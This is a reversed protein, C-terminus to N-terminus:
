YKIIIEDNESPEYSEASYVADNKNYEKLTIAKPLRPKYRKPTIFTFRQIPGKWTRGTWLIYHWVYNNYGPSGPAASTQSFSTYKVTVMSTQRKAFELKHRFHFTIELNSNVISTEVLVEEINIDRDDQKASFEVYKGFEKKFDGYTMMRRTSANTLNVYYTYQYLEDDTFLKPRDELKKLKDGFLTELFTNIKHAYRPTDLVYIEGHTFVQDVFKVPFGADITQKKRSVNKFLFEAETRGMQKQNNGLFKLAEEELVIKQNEIESYIPGGSASFEASWSGDDAFAALPATIM